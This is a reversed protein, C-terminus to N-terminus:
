GQDRDAREFRCAEDAGVFHLDAFGARTREGTNDTDSAIALLSLRAGETAFSQAVDQAVHVRENVWVGAHQNGSRRVIMHARDTYANPMRTGVPHRNDWVYNIAADPVKDGYFARALALSAKGGFSIADAPLSFALYVRAAYDDGRRQSMDAAKVVQDIRWRWCLIPTASLNIEIPRALLAMSAEAQAEIATVGDWVVTRFRTAAVHKELRVLQWPDSVAAMGAQFRGVSVEAMSMASTLLSSLLIILASLRMAPFNLNYRAM